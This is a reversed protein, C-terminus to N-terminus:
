NNIKKSYSLPLPSNGRLEELNCADEIAVHDIIAKKKIIQM